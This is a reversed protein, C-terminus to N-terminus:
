EFTIRGSGIESYEKASMNGFHMRGALKIKGKGFDDNTGILVAPIDYGAEKYLFCDQDYKESLRYVNDRFKYSDSILDFTLFSNEKNTEKGMETYCGRVKAVGYGYKRLTQQLKRNNEDNERRSNGSRWATVIACDTNNLWKRARQVKYPNSTILMTDSDGDALFEGLFEEYAEDQEIITGDEKFKEIEDSPLLIEIQDCFSLDSDPANEPEEGSSNDDVDYGLFQNEDDFLAEVIKCNDEDFYFLSAM